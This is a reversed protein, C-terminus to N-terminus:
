PSVIGGGAAVATFRMDPKIRTPVHKEVTTGDGLQGWWNLGWAWLGGDEDIALSHWSGAAVMVARPDELTDTTAPTIPAILATLLALTLTLPIIRKKLDYGGNGITPM